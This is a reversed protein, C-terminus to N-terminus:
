FGEGHLPDQEPTAPDLSANNNISSREKDMGMRRVQGATAGLRLQIRPKERYGLVWCGSDLVWFGTDLIWYGAGKTGKHREGWGIDSQHNVGTSIPVVKEFGFNVSSM